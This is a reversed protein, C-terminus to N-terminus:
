AVSELDTTAVKYTARFTSVGYLMPAELDKDLTLDWSVWEFIETLGELTTGAGTETADALAETVEKDINDIVGGIDSTQKVRAQIQVTLHRTQSLAQGESGEDLEDEVTVVNLAPLERDEFPHVRTDFVSTGTTVLGTVEAVVAERIQTRVHDVM